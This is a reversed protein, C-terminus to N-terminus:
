RDGQGPQSRYRPLFFHRTSRAILEAGVAMSLHWLANSLHPSTESLFRRSGQRSAEAIATAADIRWRLEAGLASNALAGGEMLVVTAPCRHLMGPLSLAAGGRLQEIARAYRRVLSHDPRTRLVYSLLTTGERLVQRRGTGSRSMGTALSRLELGLARLDAATEMTPLQFLSNLRNLGLRMAFREDLISAALRLLARPVPIFLRYKHLRHNALARLFDTFPLPEAAAICYPTARREGRVAIVLLAQACDDVHLPQILPSPWFAPLVPLTRVLNSLTEFLGAAAGGYVQGLRVVVGGAALVDRELRWKTRGYATPANERATQSSIFVFLADTARTAAILSNTAEIDREAGGEPDDLIAALHVVVDIDAPVAIPATSNLDLHLWDSAAPVPRRSM